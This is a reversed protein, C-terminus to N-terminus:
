FSPVPAKEALYTFLAFILEQKRPLIREADRFRGRQLLPTELAAGHYQRNPTGDSYLPVMIDFVTIPEPDGQEAIIPSGHLGAGWDAGDTRALFMMVHPASITAM